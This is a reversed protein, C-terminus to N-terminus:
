RRRKRCCRRRGNSRPRLLKTDLTEDTAAIYRGGSREKTAGMIDEECLSLMDVNAMKPALILECHFDAERSDCYAVNFQIELGLQECASRLSADNARLIDLDFEAAKPKCYEGGDEIPYKRQVGFALEGGNPLFSQDGLLSSLVNTLSPTHIDVPTHEARAVPSEFHLHYVLTVLYGSHVESIEYEVDNSFAVYGFELFNDGGRNPPSLLTRKKAMTIYSWTVVKMLHQFSSYWHGLCQIM